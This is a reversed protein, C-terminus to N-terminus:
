PGTVMLLPTVIVLSPATPPTRAVFPTPMVILAPAFSTTLRRPRPMSPAFVPVTPIWNVEPLDRVIWFDKTRCKVVDPILKEGLPLEISKTESVDTVFLPVLPIETAPPDLETLPVSLRTVTEPFPTPIKADPVPTLRAM